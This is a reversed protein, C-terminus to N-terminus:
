CRSTTLVMEPAPPRDEDVNQMLTQVQRTTIQEKGVEAM